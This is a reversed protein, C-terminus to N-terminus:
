PTHAWESGELATANANTGYTRFPNTIKYWGGSFIPLDNYWGVLCDDLISQDDAQQEITYFNSYGGLNNNRGFASYAAQRIYATKATLTRPSEADPTFRIAVGTCYGGKGSIVRMSSTENADTTREGSLTVNGSAVIASGGTGGTTVSPFYDEAGAGRGGTIFCGGTVTLDGMVVIADGGNGGEGFGDGGSIHAKDTPVGDIIVFGGTITVNGFAEIGIGGKAESGTTSCGAVSGGDITVNHARISAAPNRGDIDIGSAGVFSTFNLNGNRLKAITGRVTVDGDVYIASFPSGAQIIQSEDVIVNGEGSILSNLNTSFNLEVHRFTVTPNDALVFNVNHFPVYDTGDGFKGLVPDMQATITIDESITITKTVVSAPNNDPFQTLGSLDLIEDDLMGDVVSQVEDWSTPAYTQPMRVEASLVFTSSSVLGPNEADGAGTNLVLAM